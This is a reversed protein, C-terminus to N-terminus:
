PMTILVSARKPLNTGIVNNPPIQSKQVDKSGILTVKTHVDRALEGERSRGAADVM